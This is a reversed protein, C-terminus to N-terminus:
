NTKRRLYCIAGFFLPPFLFSSALFAFSRTAFYFLNSALFLCSSLGVFVSISLSMSLILFLFYLWKFLSSPCFSLFISQIIFSSSISLTLSLFNVTRRMSPQFVLLFHLALLVYLCISFTASNSLSLSHVLCKSLSLSLPLFSTWFHFSFM